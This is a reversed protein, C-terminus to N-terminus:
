PARPVPPLGPPRAPRPFEGSSAACLKSTGTEVVKVSIRVNEGFLSITGTVLADVGRMEGFKKVTSPDFLDKLQLNLEELVKKLHSRDIVEFGKGEAFLAVSFEEALITGLPRVNRQPDTFDIVAIRKGCGKAIQEALISSLRKVEREYSMSIDSYALLIALSTGTLFWLRYM